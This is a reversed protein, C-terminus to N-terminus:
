ADEIDGSTCLTCKRQSREFGRHRESEIHLKHSGLRIKELVSRHKANELLNLYISREYKVKVNSYLQLSSCLAIDARWQTVYIDRPRSRCVPIFKKINITELFLWVEAFGANQLMDPVKSSWNVVYSNNSIDNRQSSLITTLICNQSKDGHLKLWYKAIRVYREIHLPFRGIDSYSSLTNTSM